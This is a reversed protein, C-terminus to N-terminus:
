TWTPERTMMKRSRRGLDLDDDVVYSLDEYLGHGAVHADADIVHESFEALTAYEDALTGDLHAHSM